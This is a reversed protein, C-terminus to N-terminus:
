LEFGHELDFRLVVLNRPVGPTFRGAVGPENM